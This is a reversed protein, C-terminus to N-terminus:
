QWKTPTKKGFILVIRFRRFSSFVFLNTRTREDGNQIVQVMHSKKLGFREISQECAHLIPSICAQLLLHARDFLASPIHLPGALKTIFWLITVTAM